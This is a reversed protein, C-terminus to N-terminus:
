DEIVIQSQDLGQEQVLGFLIAANRTRLRVCGHSAPRGLHGTANTGHIAYNGSFFVSYPMPANHYLTSHWVRSLRVPQFYGTPTEYGRRATSVPWTYLPTGDVNVTMTQTSISVNVVLEASAPAISISASLLVLAALTTRM